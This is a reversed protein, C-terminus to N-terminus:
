KLVIRFYESMVLDELLNNSFLPLSLKNTIVFSKQCATLIDFIRQSTLACVTVNIFEPSALPVKPVDYHAEERLIVGM